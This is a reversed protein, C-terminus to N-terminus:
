AVIEDWNDDTFHAFRLLRGLAEYAEYEAIPSVEGHVAENRWYSILDVFGEIGRVISASAGHTLLERVKKTGNASRYQQLVRAEDGTKAIATALLISEAAAGCMACSALYASMQWCKAAEQARQNFGPGFRDRFRELMHGLRSPDAPIFDLHGAEKLWRVGLPTISYGNGAQGDCTIQERVRRIGPRLIGNRCLEWAAAYFIPSWEASNAAIERSYSHSNLGHLEAYHAEWLLPLYLDYGYNRYRYPDGQLRRAIAALADDVDMAKQDTFVSSRLM